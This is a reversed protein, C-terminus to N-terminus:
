GDTNIKFVFKHIKGSVDKIETFKPLNLRERKNRFKLRPLADNKQEFNSRGPLVDLPVVSETESEVSLKEERTAATRTKCSFRAARGLFSMLYDKRDSFVKYIISIM